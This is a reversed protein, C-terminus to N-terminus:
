AATPTRARAARRASRSAAPWTGAAPSPSTRACIKLRRSSAPRVARKMPRTARIPTSDTRTQYRSSRPGAGAPASPTTVSAHHREGGDPEGLDLADERDEVPEAEGPLGDDDRESGHVRAAHAHQGAALELDADLGLGREVLPEGLELPHDHLRELRRRSGRGGPNVA